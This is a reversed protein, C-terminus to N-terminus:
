CFFNRLVGTNQCFFEYFYLIKPSLITISIWFKKKLIKYIAGLTCFLLYPMGSTPTYRINDYDVGQYNGTSNLLSQVFDTQDGGMKSNHEHASEGAGIRHVQKSVLLGYM